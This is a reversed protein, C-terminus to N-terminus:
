LMKARFMLISKLYELSDPILNITSQKEPRRIYLVPIEKIKLRKRYSRAIIETDFFWKKNETEKLVPLIKRRSFFKYGTETDKFPLDLLLHVLITYVKSAIWRTFASLGGLEIRNGMAIDVGKDIARILEPIYVPSVELDVDIFGVVRGQSQFIGEAVTGGRGINEKHNFIKINPRKKAFEQIEKLTNDKSADNICIMEWTYRTNDLVEKIRELSQLLTPGENYCALILSFDIESM